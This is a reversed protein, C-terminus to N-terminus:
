ALLDDRFALHIARRECHAKLMDVDAVYEPRFSPYRLEGLKTFGPQALIRIVDTTVDRFPYGAITLVRLQPTIHRAISELTPMWDGPFHAFTEIRLGELRKCRSLLPIISPSPPSGALTLQRLHPAVLTFAAFIADAVDQDERTDFCLELSVLTKRASAFLAHLLGPSPLEGNVCGLNLELRRPAFALPPIPGIPEGITEPYILRLSKLATM